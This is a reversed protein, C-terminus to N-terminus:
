FDFPNKFDTSSIAKNEENSPRVLITSAESTPPTDMDMDGIEGLLGTTRRGGFTSVRLEELRRRRFVFSVVALTLFVMLNIWGLYINEAIAFQLECYGACETIPSNFYQSKHALGIIASIGLVSGTALGLVEGVPRINVM